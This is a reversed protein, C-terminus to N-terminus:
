DTKKIMLMGIFGILLLPLCSSLARYLRFGINQRKERLQRSVLALSFLASGTGCDMFLVGSEEVKCFKIPFMRFDVELISICTALQLLSRYRSVFHFLVSPSQNNTDFHTRKYIASFSILWNKNILYHLSNRFIILFFQFTLIKM